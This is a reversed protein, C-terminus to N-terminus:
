NGSLVVWEEEKKEDSSSLLLTTSMGLAFSVIDRVDEEKLEHEKLKESPSLVRLVESEDSLSLFRNQMFKLTALGIRVTADHIGEILMDVCVLCLDQSLRDACSNLFMPAFVGVSFNVRQFHVYLRPLSQEVLHEFQEFCTPAQIVARHMWGKDQKETVSLELRRSVFLENLDYIHVCLWFCIEEDDRSSFSNLVRIMSSVVFNMGQCYGFECNNMLNAFSILSLLVRNLCSEKQKTSENFTRDVDRRIRRVEEKWVDQKMTEKACIVIADHTYMNGLFSLVNRVLNKPSLTHKTYNDHHDADADPEVSDCCSKKLLFRQFVVLRVHKTRRLVSEIENSLTSLGRSRTQSAIQKWRVVRDCTTLRLARLVCENYEKKKRNRRRGGPIPFSRPRTSNLYRGITDSWFEQRTKKTELRAFTDLRSRVTPPGPLNEFDDHNIVHDYSLVVLQKSFRHNRTFQRNQVAKSIENMWILASDKTEARLHITEFPRDAFVTFTREPDGYERCLCVGIIRSLTLVVEEELVGVDGGCVAVNTIKHASHGWKLVQGTLEFNRYTFGM